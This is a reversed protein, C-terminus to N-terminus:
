LRFTGRRLERKISNGVERATQSPLQSQSTVNIDGININTNNGGQSSPANGANIAQLEPLFNATARQNAVFEGPALMTAQTDQGRSQGGSAMYQMGGHFAFSAGGASAAAAAAAAAARAAAAMRNFAAEANIASGALSGTTSNLSGVSSNAQSAQTGINGTSTAANKASTDVNDLAAKAGNVSTTDVELDLTQPTNILLLLADLDTQAAPDPAVAAALLASQAQAAALGARLGTLLQEQTAAVLTGTASPVQSQVFAIADALGQRITVLEESTAGGIGKIAAIAPTALAEANDAQVGFFGNKSALELTSVATAMSLAFQKGTLELEGGASKQDLVAQKIIQARQELGVTPDDTRVGDLAARTKADVDASDILASLKVTAEFQESTLQNKLSAISTEWQVDLNNLSNILQTEVSEALGTLGFRKIIDSGSFEPLAEELGKLNQAIEDFQEKLAERPVGAAVQKTLENYANVQKEVSDKQAENIDSIGDLQARLAEQPIQKQLALQRKVLVEQAQLNARVQNQARAVQATNGGAQALSLALQAAAGAAKLSDEAFERSGDGLGATSAARGAESVATYSRELARAAQQQKGLGEISRQFDFLELADGAAGLEKTNDAISKDLGDLASKVQDLIRGRSEGFGTLINKGLGELRGETAVFAAVIGDATSRSSALLKNLVSDVSNLEATLEAVNGANIEEVIKVVRALRDVEFQAADDLTNFEEALKKTAILGLGVGVTFATTASLVLALPGAFGALATIGALRLGVFATAAIGATGALSLLVLEADESDEIVSLFLGTAANKAKLASDGLEVFIVGLKAANKNATQADLEDLEKFKEGLDAASNTVTKLTSAALEGNQSLINFVGLNGRITNFAKAIKTENNGLEQSIEALAGAVDGKNRDVLAKFGDVGLGIFAKKLEETPKILKNLVNRFQTQATAADVGALSITAISSAAQEFSIGLRQALPIVTGLSSALEPLTLRGANIAGFLIGAAGAADQSDQGYVKIVASLASVADGLSGGTVVALKAAKDELLEFTESTTGLDNQLAEFAAAATEGLDRGISISLAKVRESLDGFSTEGEKAIANIRGIAFQFEAAAEASEAFGQSLETLARSAIQTQVVRAISQWSILLGQAGANANKTGAVVQDTGKKLREAGAAAGDFTTQIDGSATIKFKSMAANATDVSNKLRNLSSIASSADLGISNNIDAM